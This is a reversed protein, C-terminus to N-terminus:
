RPAAADIAPQTTTGFTLAGAPLPAGLLAGQAEHCGLARLRELQEPREVGDACATMGLSGALTAVARVIAAAETSEAVNRVFAPHIKIRTFRLTLLHSLSSPGAGFRDLVIRVGLRQMQQLLEMQAADQAPGISEAIELQLREAPLGAGRLASAVTEHLHSDRWQLPSLNIALAVGGPWAAADRVAAHLAFGGIADILGSEEAAGIFADAGLLGREPHRWHLLAEYVVVSRSGLEVVPQYRLEFQAHALADRL